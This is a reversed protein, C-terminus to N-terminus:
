EVDEAADGPTMRSRPEAALRGVEMEEHDTGAEKYKPTTRPPTSPGPKNTAKQTMAESVTAAEGGDRGVEVCTRCATRRAM